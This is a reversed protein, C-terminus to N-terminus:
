YSPEAERMPEPQPAPHASACGIRHVISEHLQRALERRHVGDTTALPATASVRAILRRHAIVNSLCEGLSIDGDYAPARSPSGDTQHYSIALAQLPHAAEIAPQLLAAHFALVHSGDTTTGEPFVGVNRGADLLGAIEANVIRAHGRSGRRLFVTENKAALWGIVPWQRVEAKSIFATPALANIVFIDLWSVHNAVLLCGPSVAHGGAEIQMGVIALLQRSWRQRLSLRRAPAVFPYLLIVTLVGQLIHVAVRM